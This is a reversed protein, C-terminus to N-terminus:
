GNDFSPLWPQRDPDTASIVERCRGRIARKLKDSQLEKWWEGPVAANAFQQSGGHMVPSAATRAPPAVTMLNAVSLSEPRVYDPGSVCGTMAVVLPSLVFLHAWLPLRSPTTLPNM